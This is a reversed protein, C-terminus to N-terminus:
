HYNKNVCKLEESVSYDTVKAWSLKLVMLSLRRLIRGGEVLGGTNQCIYESAKCM